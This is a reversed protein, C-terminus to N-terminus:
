TLTDSWRQYHNLVSCGVMPFSYLARSIVAACCVLRFYCCYYYDGCNLGHFCAVTLQDLM